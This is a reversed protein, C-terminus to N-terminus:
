TKGHRQKRMQKKAQKDCWDNCWYRVGERGSHGKVHKARIRVSPFHEAKVKQYMTKSSSGKSTGDIAMVVALCDTQVLISAAGAKAALWVGCLVALMEAETSHEPITKFTGAKQIKEGGDIAIWAAWGAARTKPCFSADTIVTASVPLGSPGGTARAVTGL